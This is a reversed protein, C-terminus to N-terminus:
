NKKPQRLEDLKKRAAADDPNIQLVAQLHEAAKAPQGRRALLEGLHRHAEAFEPRYYVAKELADRAGDEDKLKLLCLGLYYYANASAPKLRAAQRFRKAAEAAENQLLLASGLAFRAEVSDPMLEVARHLAVEAGQPQQQRMRAEGLLLWAMGAQPYARIVEEAQAAAEDARGEALLETIRDIGAQRGVRLQHLKDLYPDPWSSPRSPTEARRDKWDGREYALRALGYRARPNDPNAELSRHFQAEAEDMRGCELLLEALRLRPADPNDGCLEVTQRLKDIAEPPNETLLTLAHYYPWTPEHPNLRQAQTFCQRSEPLFNFNFLLMGLRGWATSSRPSARVEDQAARLAAVVAADTDAVEVVPPSVIEERRFIGALGVALLAAITLIALLRRRRTKITM